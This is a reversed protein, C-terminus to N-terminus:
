SVSNLIRCILKIEDNELEPHMPISFIQESYKESEPFDGKRYGLFEFAHQLHLPVPYHIGCAIGNENLKKMVTERLFKETRIVYLHYVSKFNVPIEPLIYKSNDINRNYIEAIQIRRDNWEELYKLKVSLVAGQIGDFRHNFGIIKHEYKGTRGHDALMRIKEALENNNTVICGADGYAGLNKGPYFSFSGCDGITGIKKGRYLAGHAQASDELVKLKYKSALKMIEDMEAPCGYLHVPIIAKTKSTIGKEIKSVDINYTVPDNDIFVPKAGIRCVSEATAVFTNVPVIVEDGDKVGMGLLALFLSDTGNSVCICNKVGLYDAFEKEFKKAFEGSIFATKEIVKKIACDIENKIKEYQRKLDVLEIKM